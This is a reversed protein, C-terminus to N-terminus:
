FYWEPIDNREQCFLSETFTKMQKYQKSDSAAVLTSTKMLFPTRLFETFKDPFWRHQLRKKIFKCAQCRNQLVDTM